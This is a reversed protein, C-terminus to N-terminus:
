GCVWMRHWRWGWPTWAHHVRWCSGGLLIPARILAFHRRPFFPHRVFFRQRYVTHPFARVHHFALMRHGGMYHGGWRASAPGPALAAAGLTAAAALALICKRFM